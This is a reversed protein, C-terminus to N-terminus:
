TSNCLYLATVKKRGHDGDSIPWGDRDESGRRRSTAVTSDPAPPRGAGGNATGVMLLLLAMATVVSLLRRRMRGENEGLRGRRDCLDDRCCQMGVPCLRDRM